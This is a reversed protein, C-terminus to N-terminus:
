EVKIGGARIVEGWRRAESQVFAALEEPSTSAAVGGMKEIQAAYDPSDVIQRIDQTIRRQLPAPLGAPALMCLWGETVVDPYGSEAITPVDPLFPLRKSSSVALARLQGSRVLPLAASIVEFLVPVHKGIVSTAAQASGRHPVHILNTGTARKFMEATLHQSSGNGPSSYNMGASEAKAARVLGAVDKIPSSPEVAILYPGRYTVSLPTFGKQPDYPLKAYFAPNLALPGIAGMGLTYGDAPAKALMELGIMGAAGPRNDVVVGQGWTKALREALLRAVADTVNGPAYPVIMRVPREPFRDQAAARAAPLLFPVAALSRLAARRRVTSM